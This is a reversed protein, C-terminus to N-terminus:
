VKTRNPHQKKRSDIISFIIAISLATVIVSLSLLSPIEIHFYEKVIMKSGIFVLIFSLAYSIYKFMEMIGALAFFMSRLGVVAFINSTFVILTDTTIGLIAPISDFAFILDTLEVMVLCLFLPTFLLKSNEIVVFKGERYENTLPLIKSVIKYTIRKEISEEKDKKILLKIGTYILIIGFVYFLWTFETVLKVGIFIFIGRMIIAGVVGWFLVKHRYEHPVNFFSFIVLFVFLNDVSLSYEVLYGTFFEIGSKTNRFLLLLLGYGLSVGFWISAIKIAEKITVRHPERFFVFLDLIMITVFLLTFIVWFLADAM